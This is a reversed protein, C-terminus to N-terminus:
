DKRTRPETLTIYQVASKKFHNKLSKHQQLDWHSVTTRLLNKIDTYMICLAATGYVKM